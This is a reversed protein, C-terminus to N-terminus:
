IKFILLYMSRANMITKKEKKEDEDSLDVEYFKNKDNEPKETNKLSELGKFDTRRRQGPIKTSQM